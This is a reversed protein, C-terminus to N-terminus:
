FLFNKPVYIKAYINMINLLKQKKLVFSIANEMTNMNIILRMVIISVSMIKLM